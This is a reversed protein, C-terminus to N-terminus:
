REAVGAIGGSAKQIYGSVRTYDQGVDSCVAETERAASEREEGVAGIRHCGMWTTRALTTDSSSGVLLPRSSVGGRVCPLDTRCRPLINIHSLQELTPHRTAHTPTSM